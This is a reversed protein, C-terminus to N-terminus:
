KPPPPAPPSLTVNVPGAPPPPDLKAIAPAVLTDNPAEVAADPDAEAVNLPDAVHVAGAAILAVGLKM